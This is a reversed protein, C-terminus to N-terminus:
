FCQFVLTSSWGSLSTGPRVTVLWSFLPEPRPLNRSRNRVTTPAITWDPSLHRPPPREKTRERQAGPIIGIGFSAFNLTTNGRGRKEKRRQQPCREFDPDQLLLDTDCWGAGGRWGMKKKDGENKPTQTARTGTDCSHVPQGFATTPMPGRARRAGAKVGFFFTIWIEQISHEMPAARM